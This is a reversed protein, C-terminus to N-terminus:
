AAKEALADAGDLLRSMVALLREAKIPKEVVEDMGEALYAAADWPDANATLSWRWGSIAGNLAGGLHASNGDSLRRLTMMSTTSPTRSNM